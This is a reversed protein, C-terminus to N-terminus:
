FVREKIMRNLKFAIDPEYDYVRGNFILYKSFDVRCLYRNITDKSVGIQEAIEKVRKIEGM